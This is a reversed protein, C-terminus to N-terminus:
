DHADEQASSFLQARQGDVYQLAQHVAKVMARSTITAGAMQDFAGNDRQVAWGAATPSRRSKGNFGLLWDSYQPEIRAGLGPTEHHELVSIGLVQGDTSIGILLQIPGAYGNPARVQLIVASPQGDRSAIFAPRPPQYGLLAATSALPGATLALPQKLPQNDFSGPPLVALLAREQAAQQAAAIRPASCHHLLSTLAIGLAALLVLLLASGLTSASTPTSDPSDHSGPSGPSGPSVPPAPSAPSTPADSGSCHHRARHFLRGAHQLWALRAQRRKM